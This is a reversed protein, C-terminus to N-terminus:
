PTAAPPQDPTVVHPVSTSAKDPAKPVAATIFALLVMWGWGERTRLALVTACVICIIPLANAVLLSLDM